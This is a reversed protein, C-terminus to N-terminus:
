NKDNEKGRKFLINNILSRDIKIEKLYSEIDELDGDVDIEIIM